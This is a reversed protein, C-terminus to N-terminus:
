NGTTKAAGHVVTVPLHATRLVSRAISGMVLETVSGRGHTGLVILDALEEHACTVIEKAPAGVKCLTKVEPVRGSCENRLSELRAAALEQTSPIILSLSGGEAWPYAELSSTDIVHIITLRAGFAQAYDVALRLAPESNESFDTCFLINKPPM